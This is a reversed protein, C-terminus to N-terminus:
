MRKWVVIWPAGFAGFQKHVTSTADMLKSKIEPSQSLQLLTEFQANTLVAPDQGIPETL